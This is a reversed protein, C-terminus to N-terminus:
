QIDHLDFVTIVPKMDDYQALSNRMDLLLGKTLDAKFESGSLWMGYAALFAAKKVNAESPKDGIEEASISRVLERNEDDASKYRITVAAFEETNQRSVRDVYRSQRRAAQKTRAIEILAAVYHGSGIGDVAKDPNDFDQTTLKRVNYGILRYSGVFEPNLEVQIKVDKAVTITIAEFKQRFSELIDEPQGVFYYNGNGNRAITEMNNDKFNNLGYGVVSLYIGLSRKEKIFETLGGESTVGFNFDGDTFIFVRNNDNKDFESLLSYAAELGESGYTFSGDFTISLVANVCADKDGCDVARAVTRTKSSYTIISVTDGAKMSSLLTMLTMQVIIQNGSMSGSVDILFVFNNKKYSPVKKARIGLFLLEKDHNWPCEGIQPTVAFDEDAQPEALEYDVSNIMEEIRVFSPDIKRDLRTMNRVYSWSANNVNASFIIETDSMPNMEPLEPADHTQATSFAASPIESIPSASNLAVNDSASDIGWSGGASNSWGGHMWGSGSNIWSDDTWAGGADTSGSCISEIYSFDWSKCYKSNNTGSVPSDFASRSLAKAQSKTYGLLLYFNEIEQLQQKAIKFHTSM